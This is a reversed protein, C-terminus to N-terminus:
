KEKTMPSINMWIGPSKGEQKSWTNMVVKINDCSSTFLAETM